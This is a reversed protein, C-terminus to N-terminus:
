NLRYIKAMKELKSIPSRVRLKNVENNCNNLQKEAEEMKQILINDTSTVVSLEKELEKIMNQLEIVSNKLIM